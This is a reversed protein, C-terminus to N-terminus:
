KEWHQGYIDFARSLNERVNDDLHCASFAVKDPFIKLWNSHLFAYAVIFAYHTHTYTKIKAASSIFPSFSEGHIRENRVTYLFCSLLLHTRGYHTLQLNAKHGIELADGSLCKRLFQAGKRDNSLNGLQGYKSELVRVLDAVEMSASDSKGFIRKRPSHTSVKRSDHIGFDSMLRKYLFECSQSPMKLSLVAETIKPELWNTVYARLNETTNGGMSGSNTVRLNLSTEFAKWTADFAVDPRRPLFDYADILYSVQKNFLVDNTFMLNLPVFFEPVSGVRALFQQEVPFPERKHTVGKTSWSYIAEFRWRRHVEPRNEPM